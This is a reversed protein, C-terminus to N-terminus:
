PLAELADQLMAQPHAACYEDIMRIRGPANGLSLELPLMLRALPCPTTRTSSLDRTVSEIADEVTKTPNSLCYQTIVSSSIQHELDLKGAFPAWNLYFGCSINQPLIHADNTQARAPSCNLLLCLGGALILSSLRAKRFTSM